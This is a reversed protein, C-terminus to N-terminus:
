LYDGGADKYENYASTKAKHCIERCLIQLNSRNCFLTNAWDWVSDYDSYRGIEEIHDVDVEKETRFLEKCEACRFHLLTKEKGNKYFGVSVKSAKLAAQFEPTQRSIKRLTRKIRNETKKDM